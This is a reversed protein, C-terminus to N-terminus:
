CITCCGDHSKVSAPKFAPIRKDCSRRASYKRIRQQQMFQQLAKPPPPPLSAASTIRDRVSRELRILQERELSAARLKELVKHDTQINGLKMAFRKRKCMKVKEDFALLPAALKTTSSSSHYGLSDDSNTKCVEIGINRSDLESSAFSQVSSAPM